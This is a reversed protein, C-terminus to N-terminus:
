EVHRPDGQGALDRLRRYAEKPRYDKDLLGGWPFYVDEYDALDWWCFEIVSPKSMLILFMQELWDAQLEEDWPRHWLGITQRGHGNPFHLNGPCKPRNSSFAALEIHITKGLKAFQEIRRDIEFLDRNNHYVQLVVAEYPVRADNLMQYFEYGCVVPPDAGFNVAADESFILNTNVSRVAGPRVEGTAESVARVLEVIKDPGLGRLKDWSGNLESAIQFHDIAPYRNALARAFRVQIECVNDFTLEPHWPPLRNLWMGTVARAHKGMEAAHRVSDGSPWRFSYGDGDPLMVEQWHWNHVVANFAPAMARYWREGERESYCAFVSVWQGDRLGGQLEFKQRGISVVARESAPASLALSDIALRAQRPSGPEARAAQEFVREAAHLREHIEGSISLGDTESKRILRKVAILRDRAVEYAVDITQGKPLFGEGGAAATFHLKGFGPVELWTSLLLPKPPLNEILCFRDIPRRRMVPIYDLDCLYTEGSKPLTGGNPGIARITLSGTLTEDAVAPQNAYLEYGAGIALACILLVEGM